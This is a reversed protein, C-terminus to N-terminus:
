NEKQTWQTDRDDDNGPVLRLSKVMQQSHFPRGFEDDADIGEIFQGM